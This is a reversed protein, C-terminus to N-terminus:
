WGSEGLLNCTKCIEPPEVGPDLLQKRMSVLTPHNYVIDPAADFLNSNPGQLKTDAGCCIAMNGLGDCGVRQWLQPCRKKVPETQVTAPWLCFGPVAGEIKQRFENYAPDTDSIIESSKINDGSPRYIWFRLSRCGADRIFRATEILKDQQGEVMSRLLVISMHVPFVQNIKALDREIIARNNEYLSVNIRTIGARKLEAIRDLLLLGNTSTNTIHGRGKLFAVIRNLDNVLLPEGGQLDVLLCNAFLPNTFIRRVKELDIDSESKNWEQKHIIKAGACYHCNLNCRLTVWLSAIQPSYRKVSTTVKRPLCRYKLYNLVKPAAELLHIKRLMENYYSLKSM